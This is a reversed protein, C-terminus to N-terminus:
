GELSTRAEFGKPYEKIIPYFVIYAIGSIKKKPKPSKRFVSTYVTSTCNTSFKASYLILWTCHVYDIYNLMGGM